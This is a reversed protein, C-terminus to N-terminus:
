CRCESFGLASDAGKNFSVELTAIPLYVIVVILEGIMTPKRTEAAADRVVPVMSRHRNDGQAFRRECTPVGDNATIVIDQMQQANTM